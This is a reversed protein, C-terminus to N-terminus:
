MPGGGVKTSLSLIPLLLGMVFLCVLGGVFVMMAPELVATLSSVTADVEEEYYIAVHSFMDPLSGAEEGISAMQVLLDPFVGAEDLKESLKGGESVQRAVKEISQTIVLNGAANGVLHLAQLLPVGSQLLLGFTRSFRAAAGERILQSFLPLNYLVLDRAYAGARTRMAARFGTGLIVLGVAGVMLATPNKALESAQLLFHTLPFENPIDIGSGEFVPTFMPMLFVLLAYTLVMTFITVFVPYAAASKIKRRIAVDKEIMLALRSTVEPLNGSAEGVRVMNLYTDDFIRKHQALADSFRLGKQLDSSLADLLAMLTKSRSRRRMTALIRLLPVGASLTTALQRTFVMLQKQNLGLNLRMKTSLAQLPAQTKEEVEVVELVTFGRGRLEQVIADSNSATAEGAGAKGAADLTRYRFRAM